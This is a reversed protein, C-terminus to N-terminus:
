GIAVLDRLASKINELGEALLRPNVGFGLRFNQPDEFFQGPVVSTEYTHRLIEALRDGGDEQRVRPFCVIGGAPEVWDLSEEEEILREVLRRNAIMQPVFKKKVSDLQEIVRASIQEGIFVGEVNTYDIIKRMEKALPSPALIWGCRLGGLGFVKTLSSTVIINDALHFSTRAERGELFELYIEDIMLKVGRKQTLNVVKELFSPRLLVGSPNHLNTLVVLRTKETILSEIQDLDLQYGEGFPREFRLISAELAQPVALLPEYAPKEILVEEGRSILAACIIFIAHSAGLTTVVNEAPVGYRLGLAELLPPYGHTNNGQIDLDSLDIELDKLSLNEVGSRSLNIKTQSRTKMWEMFQITKFPM